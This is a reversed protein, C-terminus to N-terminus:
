KWESYFHSVSRTVYLHRDEPSVIGAYETIYRRPDDAQPSIFNPDSLDIQQLITPFTIISTNQLWPAGDPMTKSLGYFQDALRLKTPSSRISSTIYFLWLFLAGNACSLLALLIHRLKPYKHIVGPHHGLSDESTSELEDDPGSDSPERNIPQYQYGRM